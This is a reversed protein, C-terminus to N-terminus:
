PAAPSVEALFRFVAEAVADAGEIPAMHGCDPLLELRANPILDRYTEGYVPQILRDHAGWLALTPAQVRRLRRALKPDFWPNWALLALTTMARYRRMREDPTDKGSFFKMAAARNHFVTRALAEGGLTPLDPILAGDVHLGAANLLVLAGVWDPYFVALEAAIWGGLSFGAVAPRDLELARFLEEYHLVLDDMGEVWDPRETRGFGPHDPAYVTFREALRAHLPLWEGAPAVGHLYVLAPGAGGVLVHTSLDNVTIFRSEPAASM